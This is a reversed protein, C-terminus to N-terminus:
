QFRVFEIMSFPNGGEYLTYYSLKAEMGEQNAVDFFRVMGWEFAQLNAFPQESNTDDYCQAFYRGDYHWHNVPYESHIEVRHARKIAETIEDLTADYEEFSLGMM